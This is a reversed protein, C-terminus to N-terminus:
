DNFGYDTKDYGIVDCGQIILLSFIICVLSIIYKM